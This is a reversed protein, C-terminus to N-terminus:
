LPILHMSFDMLVRCDVLGCPIKLVLATNYCLQVIFIGSVWARSEAVSVSRCAASCPANKRNFARLLGKSRREENETAHFVQPPRSGFQSFLREIGAVDFVIESTDAAM